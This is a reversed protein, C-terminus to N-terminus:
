RAGSRLAADVAIIQEDLTAPVFGAAACAADWSLGTSFYDDAVPDTVPARTVTADVGLVQCARHALAEFELLEGGSDLEGSGRGVADLAVAFFDDVGCYRRWVERSAQVSVSGSRVSGVIQSFAYREPRTVLTGSLSWPRAALVTLGPRVAGLVALETLRKTVGYPDSDLERGAGDSPHVAAGSSVSIVRRTSELSLLQLLRSTLAMNDHVYEAVPIQPLYDRLVFACDIVVTPAFDRLADFDWAVAPVTGDGTSIERPRRTLYMAPVGIPQLLAAVTSGFWGGAGTVVVRDDQSLSARALAIADARVASM